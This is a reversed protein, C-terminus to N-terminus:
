PPLYPFKPAIIFIFFFKSTVGCIRLGMWPFDPIHICASLLKFLVTAKSSDSFNSFLLDNEGGLFDNAFIHFFFVKYLILIWIYM